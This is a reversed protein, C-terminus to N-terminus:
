GLVSRADGTENWKSQSEWAITVQCLFGDVKVADVCGYECECACLCVGTGM